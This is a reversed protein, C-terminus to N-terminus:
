ISIAQHTAATDCSIEEQCITDQGHPTANNSLKLATIHPTPSQQEGAFSMQTQLHMLERKELFLINEKHICNVPKQLLLPFFSASKNDLRFIRSQESYLGARRCHPPTYDQLFTVLLTMCYKHFAFLAGRFHTPVQSSVYM